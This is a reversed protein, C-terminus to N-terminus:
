ASVLARGGTPSDDLVQGVAEPMANIVRLYALLASDPKYRGVELDQLRRLNIKFRRAFARQSLGTAERTQRALRAARGRELMADSAELHTEDLAAQREIEAENMGAQRAALEAPLATEIKRTM